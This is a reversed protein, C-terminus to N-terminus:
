AYRSALKCALTMSADRLFNRGLRLSVILNSRACPMGPPLLDDRELKPKSRRKFRWTLLASQKKLYIFCRWTASFISKPVYRHLHELCSPQSPRDIGSMRREHVPFLAGPKHDFYTDVLRLVTNHRAGNLMKGHVWFNILSKARQRLKV